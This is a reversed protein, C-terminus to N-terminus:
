IQIKQDEYKEPLQIVYILLYSLIWKKHVFCAKVLFQTERSIQLTEYYIPFFRFHMFHTFYEIKSLIVTKFGPNGM